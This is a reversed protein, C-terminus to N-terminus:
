EELELVVRERLGRPAEEEASEDASIQVAEWQDDGSSESRASLDSDSMWEDGGDSTVALEVAGAEAAPPAACRLARRGEYTADVATRGFRCRLWRGGYGAGAVVVATGGAVPGGRPLM